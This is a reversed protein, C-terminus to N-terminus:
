NKREDESLGCEAKVAEVAERFLDEPGASALLEPTATQGDVELGIVQQLGWSIYLQDVQASLLAAELKEETSKGANLFERRLSLERIRRVLEMRRGFSMKAIIFTVGPRARSEARTTSEYTM